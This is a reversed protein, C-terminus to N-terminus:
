GCPNHLGKPFMLWLDTGLCQFGSDPFRLLYSHDLGLSLSYVLLSSRGPPCLAHACDGPDCFFPFTSHNLGFHHAFISSKCFTDSTAQPVNDNGPIYIILIHSIVTSAWCFSETKPVENGVRLSKM